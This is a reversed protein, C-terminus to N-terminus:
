DPAAGDEDLFPQLLATALEVQDDDVLLIQANLDNTLSTPYLSGFASGQIHHRIGYGSMLAALIAAEASSKLTYVPTM